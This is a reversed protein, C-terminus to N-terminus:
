RRRRTHRLSSPHEVAHSLGGPAPDDGGGLPRMEPCVIGELGRLSVRPVGSAALRDLIPEITEPRAKVHRACHHLDYKWRVGDLADLGGADTIKTEPSRGRGDALSVPYHALARRGLWAGTGDAHEAVLDFEEVVEEPHGEDCYVTVSKM